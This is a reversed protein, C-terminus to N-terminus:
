GIMAIPQLDSMLFIKTEETFLGRAVVSDAPVEIITWWFFLYKFEAGVRM